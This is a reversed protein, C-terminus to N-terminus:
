VVLHCHFVTSYQSATFKLHCKNWTSPIWSNQTVLSYLQVQPLSSMMNVASGTYDMEDWGAHSSNSM